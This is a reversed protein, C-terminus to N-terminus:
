LATGGESFFRRTSAVDCAIQATLEEKSAFKKEARIFHLFEVKVDKEYLDGTFDLLYTEVNVTSSNEVTPRVGVNSVGCYVQGEVHCVTAYVGRRPIVAGTPFLQNLTPTGLHRGLAKGHLVPTTIAYPRGLLTAALSPDGNEIAQRIRSASVTGGALMFPSLIVADLGAKQMLETLLAADGGANKGFRFNFGAVALQARCVALLYRSVFEEPSLSCVDEFTVTFLYDIGIEEFLANRQQDDTLRAGSKVGPLGGSFTFVAASLGRKKAEKVTAELLARHALHVGDFFGLALVSPPFAASQAGDLHIHQM